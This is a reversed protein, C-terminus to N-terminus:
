RADVPSEDLMRIAEEIARTLVPAEPSELQSELVSRLSSGPAVPSGNTVGLRGGLHGLARAALIRADVFTYEDMLVSLVAAVLTDSPDKVQGAAALARERIRWNDRYRLLRVLGPQVQDLQGRDTIDKLTILVQGWDELSGFPDHSM